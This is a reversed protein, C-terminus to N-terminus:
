CSAGTGMCAPSGGDFGTPCTPWLAIKHPEPSLAPPRSALRPFDSNLLQSMTEFHKLTYRTLKITVLRTAIPRWSIAKLRIIGHELEHFCCTEWGFDFGEGKLAGLRAEKRNRKGEGEKKM